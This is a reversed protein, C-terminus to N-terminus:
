SSPTHHTALEQARQVLITQLAPSNIVQVATGFSLLWNALWELEGTVLEVIVTDAQESLTRIGFSWERQARDLAWRSFAVQVCQKPENAIWSQICDSITQHDRYEYSQETLTYGTVRDLRFDRFDNRMKCWSLLHWRNQYHVLELPEVPRSTTNGMRDQYDLLIIKREVMAQQVCAIDIQHPASHSDHQFFSTRQELKELSELLEKPLVAQIKLVASQMSAVVSPDTIGQVLVSATAIAMAEQQSFMVPPLHYGHMLSYGRGVEAIVPVGAEGLATIDRYITRVSVEFHLAIAEATIQRKSQLLLIIAVLRDVRNM